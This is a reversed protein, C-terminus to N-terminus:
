LALEAAGITGIRKALRLAKLLLLSHDQQYHAVVGHWLALGCQHTMMHWM